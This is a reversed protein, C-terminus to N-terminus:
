RGGTFDLLTEPMTDFVVEYTDEFIDTFVAVFVENCCFEDIAQELQGFYSETLNNPDLPYTKEVLASATRPKAEDIDIPNPIAWGNKSVSM